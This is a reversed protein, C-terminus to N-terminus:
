ADCEKGIHIVTYNIIHCYYYYLAPLSVPLPAMAFVIMCYMDHSTDSIIELIEDDSEINNFCNVGARQAEKDHCYLLM